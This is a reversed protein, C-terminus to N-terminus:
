QTWPGDYLPMKSMLGVSNGESDAVMALREVAPAGFIGNADAFIDEAPSTVTVQRSSLDHLLADVDPVNLYCCGPNGGRVFMIRLEGVRVFAFGPGDFTALPTAGFNEVWFACARELDQATLPLQYIEM